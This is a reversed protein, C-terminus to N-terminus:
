KSCIIKNLYRYKKIIRLDLKKKIEFTKIYELYINDFKM